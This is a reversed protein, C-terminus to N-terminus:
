SRYIKPLKLAGDFCSIMTIIVNFLINMSAGIGIELLYLGVVTGLRVLLLAILFFLLQIMHFTIEM